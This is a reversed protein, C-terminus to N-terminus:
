CPSPPAPTTILGCDFGQVESLGYLCAGKIIEATIRSDHGVGVRLDKKETGTKKALYDAFARAIFKVLPASLTKPETDIAIAAGRVDNGNQVRTFLKEFKLEGM